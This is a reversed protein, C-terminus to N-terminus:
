KKEKQEEILENISNVCLDIENQPSEGNDIEDIALQVFDMIEEQLSPHEFVQVRAWSLLEKKSNM